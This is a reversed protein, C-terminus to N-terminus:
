WRWAGKVADAAVGRKKVVIVFILRAAAPGAKVPREGVSGNLLVDIVAMAHTAYLDAAMAAACMKAMNKGISGTFGGAHAIADIRHRQAKVRAVSLLM